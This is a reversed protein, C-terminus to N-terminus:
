YKVGINQLAYLLRLQRSYLNTVYRKLDGRECECHRVAQVRVVVSEVDCIGRDRGVWKM